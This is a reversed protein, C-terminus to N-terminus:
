RPADPTQGRGGSVQQRGEVFFTVADATSEIDHITRYAGFSANWFGGPTSLPEHPGVYAYPLSIEDDGPSFGYNVQDATIALDFHEPFIQPETSEDFAAEAVLADLAAQGLSYWQALVRAAEPDIDLPVDPELPTAPPFTRWPFGPEIGVFEAAARVTTLPARRVGDQETVVVETGEVSVISGDPLPPTRFGGPGQELSIEGTATKRAAALVHEAVRHLADRTSVLTPMAPVDSM